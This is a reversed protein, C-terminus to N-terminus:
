RGSWAAWASPVETYAVVAGFAAAGAGLVVVVASGLPRGLVWPLGHASSATALWAVASFLLSILSQASSAPPGAEGFCGCSARQRALLLTILAFVAYLCAIAGTAPRSPALMVLLALALEAVALARVLGGRAPVGLTRLAHAAAAPSRLKAAGALLLVAAAVLLPPTLAEAM